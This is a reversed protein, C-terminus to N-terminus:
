YSDLLAWYFSVEEFRARRGVIDISRWREKWSALEPHWIDVILVLRDGTGRHYATHTFSDDLALVKM